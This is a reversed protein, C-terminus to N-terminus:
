KTKKREEGKWEWEKRGRGEGGKKKGEMREFERQKKRKKHKIIDKHLWSPDPVKSGGKEIDMSRGMTSSNCVPLM